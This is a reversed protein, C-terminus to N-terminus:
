VKIPSSIIQNLLSAERLFHKYSSISLFFSTMNLVDPREKSFIFNCNISVSIIPLSVVIHHLRQAIDSIFTGPIFTLLLSRVRGNILFVNNEYNEHHEGSTFLGLGSQSM